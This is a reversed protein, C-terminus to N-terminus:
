EASVHGSPLATCVTFPAASLPSDARGGPSALETRCLAGSETTVSSSDGAAVHTQRVGAQVPLTRQMWFKRPKTWM